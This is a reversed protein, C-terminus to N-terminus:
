KAALEDARKPKLMGKRLLGHSQVVLPAVPTKARGWGFVARGMRRVGGLVM